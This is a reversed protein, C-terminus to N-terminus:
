IFPIKVGQSLPTSTLHTTDIKSLDEINLHIIPFYTKQLLEKEIEEVGEPFYITKLYSVNAETYEYRLKKKNIVAAVPTISFPTVFDIREIKILSNDRYDKLYQLNSILERVRSLTDFVRTIKIM